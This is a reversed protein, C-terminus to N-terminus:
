CQMAPRRSKTVGKKRKNLADQQLEKLWKNATALSCGYEEAIDGQSFLIMNGQKTEQERSKMWELFCFEKSEFIKTTQNEM